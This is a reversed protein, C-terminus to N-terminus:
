IILEPVTMIQATVVFVKDYNKMHKNDKTDTIQVKSKTLKTVRGVYMGTSASTSTCCVFDGESINQGFMDEKDEITLNNTVM